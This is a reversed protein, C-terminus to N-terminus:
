VYPFHIARCVSNAGGAGDDVIMGFKANNTSVTTVKNNSNDWYVVAYNAANNLNIVDYVGGGAAMAGQVINEIPVHASLCTLGTTNGALVVEGAAVNGAAPTYDIMRPDGHRFTAEAM